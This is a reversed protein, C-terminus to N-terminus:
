KNHKFPLKYKRIYFILSLVSPIIIWSFLGILLVKEKDAFILFGTIMLMISPVTILAIIRHAFYWTDEDCVTWPLRLGVFRTYPLKPSIYGLFLMVVIVIGVAFCFESEEKIM